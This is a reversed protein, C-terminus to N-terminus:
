EPDASSLGSSIGDVQELDIEEATEAAVLEDGARKTAEVASGDRLHLTVTEGEAIEAIAARLREDM